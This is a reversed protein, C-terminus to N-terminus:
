WMGLYRNERPFSRFRPTMLDFDLCRSETENQELLKELGIQDHIDIPVIDKGRLVVIFEVSRHVRSDIKHPPCTRANVHNSRDRRNKANTVCRVILHERAM